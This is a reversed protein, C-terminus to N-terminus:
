HPAGASPASAGDRAALFQAWLRDRKRAGNRYGFQAGIFTGFFQALVYGGLLLVAFGFAPHGLIGPGWVELVVFLVAAIILGVFGLGYVWRAETDRKVKYLRLVDQPIDNVTGTEAPKRECFPCLTDIAQLRAYCFGCFRGAAPVRRALREEMKEQLKDMYPYPTVYGAEGVLEPTRAATSDAM